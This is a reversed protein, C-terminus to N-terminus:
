IWSRCLLRALVPECRMVTGVPSIGPSYRTCVADNVASLTHAALPMIRMSWPRVGGAIDLTVARCSMQCLPECCSTVLDDLAEVAARVEAELAAEPGRAKSRGHIELAM